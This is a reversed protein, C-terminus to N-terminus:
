SAFTILSVLGRDYGEVDVEFHEASKAAKIAESDPLQEGPAFGAIENLVCHLDGAHVIKGIVNTVEHFNETLTAPLAGSSAWEAAASTPLMTLAASMSSALKSEVVCLAVKNGADDAYDATWRPSQRPPGVAASHVTIPRRLLQELLTALAVSREGDAIGGAFDEIAQGALAATVKAILETTTFPKVVLFAAGSQRATAVVADSSESTIFGFPVAWGAARLAQLFELWTMGGMNWDCLVLDVPESGLVEIAAEASEAESIGDVLEVERLTRSVIMRMARSDDVVLVRVQTM